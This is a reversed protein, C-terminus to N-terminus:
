QLAILVPIMGQGVQLPRLAKGLVTGFARVPDEARMAHGPTPSTTLLDGVAIPAYQADVKCFTKGVLSIPLRDPASQQRDLVLGPKYPGAGSVVGAVRRDYAQTSLHLKGEDGLVMVSGPDATGCDGIDFDEACDANQVIIDGAQRDLRITEGGQDNRLVIDSDFRALRTTVNGAADTNVLLTFLNKAEQGATGGRSPLWIFSCQGGFLLQSERVGNSTIARLRTFSTVGTGPDSAEIWIEEDANGQHPALHLAVEPSPTGIGVYGAPTMVVRLNYIDGFAQGQNVINPPTTWFEIHNQRPQLNGPIQIAAGAMTPHTNAVKLDDAGDDMYLNSALLVTGHHNSGLNVYNGNSRPSGTNPDEGLGVFGLQTFPM